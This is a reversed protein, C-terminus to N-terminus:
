PEIGAHGADEVVRDTAAVEGVTDLDLLGDAVDLRWELADFDDLRNLESAHQEQVAMDLERCTVLVGVMLREDM